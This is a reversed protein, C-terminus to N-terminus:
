ASSAFSIWYSFLRILLLNLYFNGRFLILIDALLQEICQCLGVARDELQSGGRHRQFVDEQLQGIIGSLSCSLQFLLSLVASVFLIHFLIHVLLLCFPQRPFTQLFFCLHLPILRQFLVPPPLRM